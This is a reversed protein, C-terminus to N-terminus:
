YLDENIYYEMVYNHKREYDLTTANGHGCFLRLDGELGAILRVSNIMDRTNGTPLDMRGTTGTMITDGTFLMDEFLYCVGGKTHGPTEIVKITKNGFPLEDANGVEKDADFHDFRRSEFKYSLNLYDDNTFKSDERGIVVAAAPYKKKIALTNGIHDVHGHTLLIYKLKEGGFKDLSRELEESPAGTDVVFCIDQETDFVAYCNAEIEGVPYCEVKIM